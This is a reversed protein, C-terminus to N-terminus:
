FLNRPINAKSHCQNLLSFYFISYSKILAMILTEKVPNDMSTENLRIKQKAFTAM